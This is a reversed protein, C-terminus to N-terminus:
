EIVLHGNSIVSGKSDLQVFNAQIGTPNFESPTNPKDTPPRYIRTGDASKLCGPCAAQNRVPVAGDGVWTKGLEDAQSANARGIGFNPNTSGSGRVAQALRDDSKAINDLNQQRLQDQLKPTTAINEAGSPQKVNGGSVGVNSLPLLEKNSAVDKELHVTNIDDQSSRNPLDDALVRAVSGGLLGVGIANEVEAHFIANESGELYGVSYADGELTELLVVENKTNQQLQKIRYEEKDEV